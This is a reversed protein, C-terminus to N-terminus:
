SVDNGGELENVARHFFGDWTEYDQKNLKLRNYTAEKIRLNKYTKDSM